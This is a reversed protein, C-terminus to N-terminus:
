TKRFYKEKKGAKEHHYIACTMSIENQHLLFFSVNHFDNHNLTLGQFRVGGIIDRFAMWM